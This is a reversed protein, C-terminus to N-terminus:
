EAAHAQKGELMLRMEEFVAEGDLGEGRDLQDIGTQLEANFKAILAKRQDDTPTM